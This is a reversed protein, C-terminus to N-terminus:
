CGLCEDLGFIGVVRVSFPNKFPQVASLGFEIENNGKGRNKWLCMSDHPCRLTTAHSRLKWFEGRRLRSVPARLASLMSFSSVSKQGNAAVSLLGAGAATM